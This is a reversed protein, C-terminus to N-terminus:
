VHRCRLPPDTLHGRTLPAEHQPATVFPVLRYQDGNDCSICHDRPPSRILRVRWRPLLGVHSGALPAAALPPDIGRLQPMRHVMAPGLHALAPDLVEGLSTPASGKRQTGEGDLSLFSM